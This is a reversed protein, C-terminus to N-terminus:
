LIGLEKLKKENWLESNPYNKHFWDWKKEADDWFYGKIEIWLDLDPLYCDPNYIRGDDMVFSQAHWNYDIKNKNFYEVV